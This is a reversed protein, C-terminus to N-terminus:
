NAPNPGNPRNFEDRMIRTNKWKYVKKISEKVWTRIAEVQAQEMPTGNIVGTTLSLATNWKSLAEDADGQYYRVWGM